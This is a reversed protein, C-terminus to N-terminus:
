GSIVKNIKRSAISKKQKLGEVEDYTTLKNGSFKALGGLTGCWVNAFKDQIITQVEDNPLYHEKTNKFGIGDYISIGKNTGCWIIDDNDVFISNVDNNVLGDKEENFVKFNRGNFRAIGRPTAIWLNDQLDLALSNIVNDPM